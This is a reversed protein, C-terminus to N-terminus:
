PHYASYFTYANTLPTDHLHLALSHIIPRQADAGPHYGTPVVLGPWCMAAYCLSDTLVGLWAANAALWINHVCTLHISNLGTDDSAVWCVFFRPRTVALFSCFLSRILVGEPVAQRRTFICLMCAGSTIQSISDLRSIFTRWSQNDPTALPLLLPPLVREENPKRTSTVHVGESASSLDASRFKPPSCSTHKEEGITPM